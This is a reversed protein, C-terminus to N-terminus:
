RIQSHKQRWKLPDDDDFSQKIHLDKWITNAQHLEKVNCQPDNALYRDIFIEVLRFTEEILFNWKKVYDPLNHSINVSQCVNDYTTFDHRIRTIIINPTVTVTGMRKINTKLQDLMNPSTINRKWTVSEAINLFTRFNMFTHLFPLCLNGISM